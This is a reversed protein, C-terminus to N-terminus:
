NLDLILALGLANITRPRAFRDDQRLYYIRLEADPAATLALGIQARSREWQRAGFDYFVEENAFIASVPGLGTVPHEIDVRNRYRWPDGPVGILDEFRNRDSVEFGAWKWGYSIAALPVNVDLRDGSVSNRVVVEIDGASLTLDGLKRDAIAGGGWLAPNPLAQGARLVSLATVRWGPAFSAAVDIEGWAQANDTLSSASAPSAALALLLALLPTRTM